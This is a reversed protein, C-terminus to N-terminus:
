HLARISPSGMFQSMLDEVQTVIGDVVQTDIRNRERGPQLALSGTAGSKLIINGIGKLSLTSKELRKLFPIEM